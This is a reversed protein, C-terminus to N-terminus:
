TIISTILAIVDFPLSDTTIYKERIDWPHAAFDDVTM